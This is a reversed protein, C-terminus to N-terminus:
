SAFPTRANSASNAFSAASSANNRLFTSTTSTRSHAGPSASGFSTARVARCEGVAASLVCLPCNVRAEVANAASSGISGGVTKSAVNSDVFGARRGAPSEDFSGPAGGGASPGERRVNRTDCASPLGASSASTRVPRSFNPIFSTGHAETAASIPPESSLPLEPPRANQKRGSGARVPRGTCTFAYKSSLEFRRSMQNPPSM